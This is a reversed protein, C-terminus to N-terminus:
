IRWLTKKLLSNEPQSKWKTYESIDYDFLELYSWLKTIRLVWLKDIPYEKSMPDNDYWDKYLSTQLRVKKLSGADWYPTWDKKIIRNELWYLDKYYKWTKFDILVNISKSAWPLTLNILADFTWQYEDTKVYHEWTITTAKYRKFFNDVWRTYREYSIPLELHWIWTWKMYAYLHIMSGFSTLTNMLNDYNIYWAKDAVSWKIIEWKAKKKKIWEKSLSKLFFRNDYPFIKWLIETVSRMTNINFDLEVRLSKLNM